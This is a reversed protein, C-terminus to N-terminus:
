FRRSPPPRLIWRTLVLLYTIAAVVFNFILATSNTSSFAFQLVFPLRRSAPLVLSFMWWERVSMLFWYILTGVGLAIALGLRGRQPTSRAVKCYALYALYLAAGLVLWRAFMIDATLWGAVIGCAVVGVAAALGAGVREVRATAPAAPYGRPPAWGPNVSPQAGGPPQPVPPGYRATQNEPRAPRPAGASPTQSSTAPTETPPALPSAWEYGTTSAAMWSTDSANSPRTPETVLPKWATGTPGVFDPRGSSPEGPPIETPDDTM